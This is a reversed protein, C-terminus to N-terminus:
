VKKSMRWSASQASATPFISLPSNVTRADHMKVQCWQALVTYSSLFGMESDPQQYRGPVPARRHFAYSRVDRSEVM